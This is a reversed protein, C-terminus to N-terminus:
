IQAPENIGCKQSKKLLLEKSNSKGLMSKRHHNNNRHHQSSVLNGKGSKLCYKLNYSPSQQLMSITARHNNLCVSGTWIDAWGRINPGPPEYNTEGDWPLDFELSDFGELSISMWPKFCSEAFFFIFLVLELLLPSSQSYIPLYIRM